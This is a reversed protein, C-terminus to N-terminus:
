YRRKARFTQANQRILSNIQLFWRKGSKPPVLQLMMEIAEEVNGIYENNVYTDRKALATVQYYGDGTSRIEKETVTLLESINEAKVKNKFDVAESLFKAQLQASMSSALLRYQEDISGATVNGLQGLYEMVADAVYSDPVSQASAPTFDMVGPALIYEKARLKGYLSYIEIRTAIFHAILLGALILIIYQQTLQSRVLAARFSIYKPLIKLDVGEYTGKPPTVVQAAEIGKEMAGIMENVKKKIQLKWKQFIPISLVADFFKKLLKGLFSFLKLGKAFFGNAIKQCLLLPKPKHKPAVVPPTHNEACLLDSRENSSEM